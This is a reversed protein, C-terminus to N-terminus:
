KQLDTLAAGERCMLHSILAFDGAACFVQPLDIHPKESFAVDWPGMLPLSMERNITISLDAAVRQAAERKKPFVLM